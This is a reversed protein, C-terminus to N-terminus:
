NNLTWKRGCGWNAKMKYLDVNSFYEIYRMTGTGYYDTINNQNFVGRFNDIITNNKDKRFVYDEEWKVSKFYMEKEKSLNKKSQLFKVMKESNLIKQSYIGINMSPGNNVRSTTMKTLNISNMKQFFKPGVKCTDHMYFYFNDPNNKYEEVETITILANFDISNHYCKITTINDNKEIEYRKDHSNYRYKENLEYHGGITLIFEFSNFEELKRLSEFLHDRAITSNIHSNILIKIRKSNDM